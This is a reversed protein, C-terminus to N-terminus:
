EEAVAAFRDDEWRGRIRTGDPYISTGTGHKRGDRFTGVYEEGGAYVYRGEGHRRGARFDGIYKAGDAFLYTGRGQRMDDEFQGKYVDGNAFTFVGNGHKLGNAFDGSYKSGDAYTMVGKGNMTDDRFAGVYRDGNVFTMKGQGSRMENLFEGIYVDGNRYFMTGAGNMFDNRFEGEYRAGDAFYYVGWGEFVGDRVEGEYRDGNPFTVTSTRPGVQGATKDPEVPAAPKPALAKGDVGALALFGEVTDLAPPAPQAVGSEHASPAPQFGATGAPAPQFGASGPATNPDAPDWEPEDLLLEAREAVSTILNSYDRRLMALDELLAQERMGAAAEVARVREELATRHRADEVRETSVWRSFRELNSKLVRNEREREAETSRLGHAVDQQGAEVDAIRGSFGTVASAYVATQTQLSGVERTTRRTHRMVFIGVSVFLVLILLVVFTFITCTWVLIRRSRRREHEVYRQLARLTMQPELARPLTEGPPPALEGEEVHNDHPEESRM